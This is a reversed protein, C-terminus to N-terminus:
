VKITMIQNDTFKSQAFPNHTECMAIAIRYNEAHLSKVFYWVQAQNNGGGGGNGGGLGGGGTQQHHQHSGMESMRREMQELRELISM